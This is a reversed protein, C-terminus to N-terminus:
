TLLLCSQAAKSSIFFGLLTASGGPLDGLGLRPHPSPIGAVGGASPVGPLPHWGSPGACGVVPAKSSPFLFLSGVRLMRGATPVAWKQEEPCQADPKCSPEKWGGPVGVVSAGPPDRLGWRVVPPQPTYVCPWIYTSKSSRKKGPPSFQSRGGGGQTSHTHTHLIETGSAAKRVSVAM